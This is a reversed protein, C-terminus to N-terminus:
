GNDRELLALAARAARAPLLDGESIAVAAQDKLEMVFRDGMRNGRRLMNALVLFGCYRPMEADSAIWRFATVSAGEMKSFLYMSCVEALDPYEIQSVWLDAMDPQFEDAPYLLAALMKYERVDEKWLAIALNSDKELKSAIEKIQPLSVGFNLRYGIGKERMSESVVGNMSLRLMRNIELIQEEVSM